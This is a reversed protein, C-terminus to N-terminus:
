NAPFGSQLEIWRCGLHFPPVNLHCVRVPYLRVKGLFILLDASSVERTRGLGVDPDPKASGNRGVLCIRDGATVALAAGSLLPMVGFNLNIDQLVLLPLPM